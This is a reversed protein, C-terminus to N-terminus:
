IGASLGLAGYLVGASLGVEGHLGVMFIKKQVGGYLKFASPSVIYEGHIRDLGDTYWIDASLSNINFGIGAYPTFFVVNKSVDARLSIIQMKFDAYLENDADELKFSQSATYQLSVSIAPSALSERLIATKIGIGFLPVFATSDGEGMPYFALRLLLDTSGFGGFGPGLSKGKFLGIRGEFSIAGATWRKLSDPVEPDSFEVTRLNIGGTIRFHPMGGLTNADQLIADNAIGGLPKAIENLAYEIDEQTQGFLSIALVTFFAVCLIKKM